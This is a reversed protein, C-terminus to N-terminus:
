IKAWFTKLDDNKCCQNTSHFSPLNMQVRFLLLPTSVKIGVSGFSGGKNRSCVSASGLFFFIVKKRVLVSQKSSSKWTQPTVKASQHRVISPYATVVCFVALSPDAGPM